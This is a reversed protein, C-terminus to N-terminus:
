EKIVLGAQGAGAWRLTPHNGGAAVGGGEIGPLHHVGGGGPQFGSSHATSCLELEGVAVPAPHPPAGPFCPLLWLPLLSCRVERKKKLTYM